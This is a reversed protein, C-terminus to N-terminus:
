QAAASAAKKERIMELIQSTIYLGVGVCIASDAVNFAPFHKDGAYFDLFDIVFGWKLRDILNGVIGATMLGGAVRHLKTDYLFQRRCVFIVGLMVVSLLILFTGQGSFIGWAAGTNRVYRFDFFGNIVSVYDGLGFHSVVAFKTAQDLCVIGVIILVVLM